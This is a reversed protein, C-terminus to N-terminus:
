TVKNCVSNESVAREELRIKFEQKFCKNSLPHNLKLLATWLVIVLVNCFSIYLVAFGSM